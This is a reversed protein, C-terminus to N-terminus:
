PINKTFKHFTKEFNQVRKFNLGFEFSIQKKFILNLNHQFISSRGLFFTTGKSNIKLSAIHPFKHLELLILKTNEL